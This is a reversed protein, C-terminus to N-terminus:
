YMLDALGHAQSTKWNEPTKKLKKKLTKHNESYLDKM